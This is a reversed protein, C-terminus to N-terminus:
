KKYLKAAEHEEKYGIYYGEKYGIHFGLKFVFLVVAVFSLPLIFITWGMAEDRKATLMLNKSM